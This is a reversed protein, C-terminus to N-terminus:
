EPDEFRPERKELNARVAEVQNPRGLLTTQLAQELALGEEVSATVAADLLKKGARIASPSKQAIERALALAAERPTDSLHTALGLEVAEAGSVVRGTFTLEKAVDLRVLHRLLQTGSMDPVLGWKIEMVSLRADPTVFRVDAGLAIQLGGGYAVGHLAAIVPVPLEKWVWAAAQAHNAPSGESRDFLNRSPRGGGGGAMAAFSTFDLGASFARGEGSLVVARLSREGALARGTDVLAEFMLPDLANMKDPRNLRVDAVGGSTEVRVRDNM